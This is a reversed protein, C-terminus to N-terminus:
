SAAFSIWALGQAPAKCAPCASRDLSGHLPKRLWRPSKIQGLRQEFEKCAQLLIFLMFNMAPWPDHKGEHWRQSSQELVENYDM